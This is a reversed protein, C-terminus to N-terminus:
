YGAVTKVGDEMIIWVHQSAGGRASSVFVHLFSFVIHCQGQSWPGRLESRVESARQVRVKGRLGESSQGGRLRVICLIVTLGIVGGMKWRMSYKHAMLNVMCVIQEDM